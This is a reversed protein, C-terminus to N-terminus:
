RGSICAFSWRIFFGPCPGFRGDLSEASAPIGRAAGTLTAHVSWARM